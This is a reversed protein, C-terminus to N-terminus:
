LLLHKTDISVSLRRKMGGSFTSTYNDQVIDLDVSELWSQVDTDLEQKDAGRISAFLELHERATLKPYLYDDQKCEGLVSRVCHPQSVASEGFVLIEGGSPNEECCLM